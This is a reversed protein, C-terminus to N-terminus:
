ELSQQELQYSQHHPLQWTRYQKNADRSILTGIQSPPQQADALAQQIDPQQQPAQQPQPQPQQQAQQAAQQAATAGREARIMAQRQPLQTMFSQGISGGYRRVNNNLKSYLEKQQAKVSQIEKLLALEFIKRDRREERLFALLQENTVAGDRQQFRRQQRQVEVNVPETAANNEATPQDIRIELIDVQEDDLEIIAVPIKEVPNNQVTPHVQKFAHRVREVDVPAIFESATEDFGVLTHELDKEAAEGTEDFLDIFEQAEWCVKKVRNGNQTNINSPGKADDANNTFMFKVAPHMKLWTELYIAMWMIVCMRWDASALIMQDPCQQMTKMNKSWRTKTRLTFPFEDDGHPADVKFHCTDDLRHILHYAWLTMFPYKIRHNFDHQTRFLELTKMFEASSYARKDNPDVGLGKTELAVIKKIAESVSHHRTPNGGIREMWAVSKNPMFFSVAQKAKEVSKGRGNLPRDNKRPYPDGFAKWNVYAKIDSPRLELLEEKSFQITKPYIDDIRDHKLSMCECIYLQRRMCVPYVWNEDEYENAAM